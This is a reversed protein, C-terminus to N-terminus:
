GVPDKTYQLLGHNGTRPSYRNQRWMDTRRALWGKHAMNPLPNGGHNSCIETRRPRAPMPFAEDAVRKLQRPWTM